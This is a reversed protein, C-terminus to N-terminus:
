FVARDPQLYWLQLLSTKNLQNYEPTMYSKVEELLLFSWHFSRSWPPRRTASM